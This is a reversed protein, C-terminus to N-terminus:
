LFKLKRAAFWTMALLIAGHRWRQINTNGYTREKYHVPLETIQLGMRAAGFILDFDGFPDFDGFYARCKVLKEYNERTLAKTGCLTDKFRQGLLFSFIAAFFWNGLINFFRMAEREIPYVLRSGNIFEGHNRLIATYFRPLEEPPVTMDADLIMLIEKTALSFGKRVADGKGKGDQRSALINIQGRYQTQIKLIENWTDDSSGGEVLILEDAPGMKPLRELLKPINGAENRAAVVVSVSPPYAWIMPKKPRVIAINILCAWRFLPLPALYRNVLESLLPIWIPLLVRNDHRVIEFEALRCLNDIDKNAIWNQEPLQSRIGLWTALKALPHWLANYYILIIRTKPSLSRYLQELLGQIDQAYHITGNLLLFDPVTSALGALNAPEVEAATTVPHHESLSLRTLKPFHQALLDNKPNVEIASDGPM